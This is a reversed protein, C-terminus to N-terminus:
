GVRQVPSGGGVGHARRDPPPTPRIVYLRETDEVGVGVGCRRCLAEVREALDRDGGVRGDIKSFGDVIRVDDEPTLMSEALPIVYGDEEDVHRRQLRVYSLASDVFRDVNCARGQCAGHMNAYMGVLRRREQAHDAFVRALREAEAPTTHSLMHPFLHLEEKDQHAWDIFTELLSLVEAAAARDLSGVIRAEASLAGLCRLLLRVLEHERALIDITEV